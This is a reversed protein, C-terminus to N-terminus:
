AVQLRKPKAASVRLLRAANRYMYKELVDSSLPFKLAMEASEKLPGMPYASAYIFQDPLMNIAELYLSGGPFHCYIDPSLYLNPHKTALALAEVVRPYGGHALVVKLQPFAQMVRDLPTWDNVGIDPAAYMGSQHMLFVDLKSLTEYLPYLKKHDASLIGGDPAAFHGLEMVAGCLGHKSVAWELGAVLSNTSLSLDLGHLGFLRNDFSKSLDLLMQDTVMRSLTGAPDLAKPGPPVNRGPTVGYDIGAEDMEKKLLNLGEQEGVKYMSPSTAESLPLNFRNERTLRKLKFDFLIKFPMLPPQVWFDIINGKSKHKSM